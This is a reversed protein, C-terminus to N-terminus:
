PKVQSPPVAKQAERIAETMRAFPEMLDAHAELTSMVSGVVSDKDGERLTSFKLPSLSTAQSASNQERSLKAVPIQTLRQLELLLDSDVFIIDPQKTAESLLRHAIIYVTVTEDLTKGHIIRQMTTVKVPSVFAFELPRTRYDTLLIGGLYNRGSDQPCSIYAIVFESLRKSLIQPEGEEVTM